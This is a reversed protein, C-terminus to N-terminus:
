PKWILRRIILNFRFISYSFRFRYITSLIIVFIFSSPVADSLIYVYSSTCLRLINILISLNTEAQLMYHLKNFFFINKTPVHEMNSKQIYYWHIYIENKIDFLTINNRNWNQLLIKLPVFYNFEFWNEQTWEKMYCLLYIYGSNSHYLEFYELFQALLMSRQISLESYSEEVEFHHPLFKIMIEIPKAYM